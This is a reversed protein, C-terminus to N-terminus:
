KAEEKYHRKDKLLRCWEVLREAQAIVHEASEEDWHFTNAEMCQVVHDSRNRIMAQLELFTPKM